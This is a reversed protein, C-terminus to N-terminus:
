GTVESTPQSKGRSLRQLFKGLQLRELYMSSMDVLVGHADLDGQLDAMSKYVAGTEKHKLEVKKVYKNLLKVGVSLSRSFASIKKLNDGEDDQMDKFEDLLGIGMELRDEVSVDKIVVHGDVESDGDPKWTFESM